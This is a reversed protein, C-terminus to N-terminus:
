KKPTRLRRTLIRTIIHIAPLSAGAVVMFIGLFDLIVLRTSGLAYFHSLPLASIASKLVDPNVNYLEEKGEHTIVAMAVTKFSESNANHCSDCDKLAKSKTVLSHSQGNHQLGLTGTMTVDIGKSKLEQYIDWIQRDDIHKEQSGKLEEYRKGLLERIRSQPIIKGTASDTLHLYVKRGGEPVHCVTCSVAEFHIDANPLWKEHTDIAKKHCGMCVTRVSQSILTPKIEHAYHCSSCMPASKVGKVKANFHASKKYDEFIIKHCKICPMGSMTELMAKSGVSHAGHCDTCIPANLNGKKLVKSHISDQFKMNKEPHCKKCAESSIAISLERKSSFTKIPHSEKSFGTHCNFCRHSSHVSKRIEAEDVSLSLIEGNNLINIDHKHCTLCYQSDGVTKKWDAIKRISHAGHCDSCPPANARLLASRHAPKSMLQEDTHCMRCAKSALFAFDKKSKYQTSPHKDMSVDTHCGSCSIFNHVSAKFDREKIHVSIKENNKFTKTLNENSHCGLCMASEDSNLTESAIAVPSLLTLGSLLSILPISFVFLLGFLPGIIFIVVKPIRIYREHRKGPLVSEQSIDIFEGSSLNLYVGKIANQGGNKFQLM